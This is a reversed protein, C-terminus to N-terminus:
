FLDKIRNFLKSEKNINSLKKLERETFTSNEFSERLSEDTVIRQGFKDSTAAAEHLKSRGLYDSPNGLKL